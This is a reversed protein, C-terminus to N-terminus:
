GRDTVIQGRFRSFVRFGCEWFWGFEWWVCGIGWVGSIVGFVRFEGLCVVTFDCVIVGRFVSFCDFVLAFAGFAFGFYYCM